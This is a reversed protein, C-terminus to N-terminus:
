KALAIPSMAGDISEKEFFGFMVDMRNENLNQYPYTGLNIM